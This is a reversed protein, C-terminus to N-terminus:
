YTTLLPPVTASSAPVIEERPILHIRRNGIDGGPLPFQMHLVYDGTKALEDIRRALNRRFTNSAYMRLEERFADPATSFLIESVHAGMQPNRTKRPSRRIVRVCAGEYVVNNAFEHVSISVLERRFDPYEEAATKMFQIARDAGPIVGVVEWRRSVDVPVADGTLVSGALADAADDGAALIANADAIKKEEAIRLARIEKDQILNINQTSGAWPLLAGDLQPLLDLQARSSHNIGRFV